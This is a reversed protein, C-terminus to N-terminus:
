GAKEILVEWVDGVRTQSLVKHGEGAVSLPVNRIPDGDGLVVKLREGATLKALDFKVKVFNLPCAVTRYDRELAVAIDNAAVPLAPADAVPAKQKEAPFRLSSDMNAYLSKIDDLLASLDARHAELDAGNKAAEIAPRFREAVLGGTIFHKLFAAFVQADAGSEIGRTILLARATRLAQQYLAAAGGEARLRDAEKLDVDILDFLGASCEGVGRGVLSFPDEAGWDFYYNKDDEFDPVAEHRKIAAKIDEEGEGDVYDAFSAFRDKKALWTHLVEAIFRPLARSPVRDFVKALRADGHATRAGAVVAYAPYIRKDKRGVNGFFGLDAIMHQGCTNPCGSINLKFDPIDDLSLGSQSLHRVVATMAGKPLCIGLKCTDAGTCSISNALLRPAAALRDFGHVLHFVNGLLNQPINRLRINQGFTARVVDPGLPVLFDALAIADENRLNGLSVPVLVSFLGPQRQPEVFRRHWADYEAGTAAQPVHATDAIVADPAEPVFPAPNEARLKEEEAAYLTRFEQEGLKNWLFRLRAMNRNKRNGYQDFLRKVTEAVIYVDSEPVFDRLLHGVEPKGGMGGAVYVVFGRVGNEIKALFGIDNFRALATDNESNSFSIKLKRPLNWSDAESILRTTLAFAHPSPDFAEHPGVGADPSLMINRITNGGGGRTALGAVLLSRMATTVDGLKLDHIQLEQRTTIHFTDAGFQASNEAVTKLQAPTLAGGTTRIRLMFTNDRRQEYCGFPVRRSKLAAADLKGDKFEAIFGDLGAIEEPLNSPIRYFM